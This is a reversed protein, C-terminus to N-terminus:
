HGAGHVSRRSFQPRTHMRVKVTRGQKVQDENIISEESFIVEAM